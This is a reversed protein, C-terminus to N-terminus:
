TTARRPDAQDLVGLIAAGFEQVQWERVDPVKRLEELDHPRRSAISQIQGNSLAAAPTTVVGRAVLDNRWSKLEIAVREAQRGVLRPRPGSNRDGRAPAAQEISSNDDLGAQVASVLEEGHRRRLASRQPLVPDLDDTHEPMIRAIGVLVNDPLVKFVPRNLRQGVKDRWVYLGRLARQGEDSLTRADRIRLFDNPDFTRGRWVRKALLRCEEEVAAIRGAATLRRLLISRLAPLWHTDGRAYELHEDYLPREAWNHRQFAKDLTHGFWNGVLDALGVRPVGLQQAAVLTDFINVFQFQFDRRLSVIDYDAGHFVKVIGPDAMVPALAGLDSVALPDIVWDTKGDSVQVLCVREQYAYFSDSETDVGIVRAQAMTAAAEALAAADRVVVLPTDSFM